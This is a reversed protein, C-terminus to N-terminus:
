RIFKVTGVIHRSKHKQAMLGGGKSVCFTYVKMGKTDVVQNICDGKCNVWSVFHINEEVMTYSIREKGEERVGDIDVATWVISSDSRFSEFMTYDPYTLRVRKGILRVSDGSAELSAKTSVTEHKSSGENQCSVVGMMFLYCVLHHLKM